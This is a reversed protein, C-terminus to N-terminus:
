EDEVVAVLWDNYVGTHLENDVLEMIVLRLDPNHKVQKEEERLFKMTTGQMVVTAGPQVESWRVVKADM